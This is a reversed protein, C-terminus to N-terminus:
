AASTGGAAIARVSLFPEALDMKGELRVALRQQPSLGSTLSIWALEEPVVVRASERGDARTGLRWQGIHVLYWDGGSDGAVSVRLITGDEAAIGRYAHPLARMLCDLVPRYFHPTLIGPRSVALRIQEQHHWRETYERATDFWNLSQEEGAWSVPFRAPAFPDLSQHFACFERSATELLTILLAPSLREGYATGERNLRNLFMPLTEGPHPGAGFHGDRFVALKRLAGDLLHAAVHRVQWGKVLTPANWEEGSLSRLLGILEAEVELMRGALLLPPLDNPREM